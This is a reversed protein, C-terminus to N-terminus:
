LSSSGNRSLRGVVEARVAESVSTTLARRAFCVQDDPFDGTAVSCLVQGLTDAHLLHYELSGPGWGAARLVDLHATAVAIEGDLDFGCGVRIHTVDHWFRFAHNSAAQGYITEASHEDSVPLPEGSLCSRVYARRLTTFDGPADRRAIWRFGLLVELAKAQSDVFRSLNAGAQALLEDSAPTITTM